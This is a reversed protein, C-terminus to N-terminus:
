VPLALDAPYTPVFVVDLYDAAPNCSVVHMAFAIKFDSTKIQVEDGDRLREINKAWYGRKFCERWDTDQAVVHGFVNFVHERQRLPGAVAPPRAPLETTQDDPM